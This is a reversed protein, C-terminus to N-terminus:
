NCSQRFALPSLNTKKKFLKNFSQPYEFGSQYTIESVSLHTTALIQKAKEILSNHIHQQTSQGTVSRLMDSLYKTSLNLQEALYTVSPLGEEQIKDSNFYATLLAEMRTLVDSAPLPRTIFQRSYYRNCYTLLLDLQSVMVDQSFRDVPLHYENGTITFITEISVEEKSSLILAENMSYHFFGYEKIKQGLPYSRIFDPHFSLLWGSAPPTLDGEQVLVQGRHSSRCLVKTLITTPKGM